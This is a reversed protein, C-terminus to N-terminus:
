RVFTLNKNSQTVEQAATRLKNAAPLALKKDASGLGRM